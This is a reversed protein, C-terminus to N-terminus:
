KIEFTLHSDSEITQTTDEIIRNVETTQPLIYQRAQKQAPERPVTEERPELPAQNQIEALIRKGQKLKINVSLM